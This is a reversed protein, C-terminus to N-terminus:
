GRWGDGMGDNRVVRWGGAVKAMLFYPTGPSMQKDDGGFYRINAVVSRVETARAPAMPLPFVRISDTPQCKGIKTYLALPLKPAMRASRVAFGHTRGWAQMVKFMSVPVAQTYSVRGPCAPVFAAGEAAVPAGSILPTALAWASLTLGAFRRRQNNGRLMVALVNM